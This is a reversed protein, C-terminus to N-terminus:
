KRWRLGDAREALCGSRVPPWEHFSKVKPSTGAQHRDGRRNRRLDGEELAAMQGKMRRLNFFLKKQAATTGMKVLELSRLIYEQIAARIWWM